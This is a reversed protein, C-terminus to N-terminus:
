PWLTCGELQIAQREAWAEGHNTELHWRMEGVLEAVPVGDVLVQRRMIALTDPVDWGWGELAAVLGVLERLEDPLPDPPVPDNAATLERLLEAKHERIFQRADDTLRGSAALRD